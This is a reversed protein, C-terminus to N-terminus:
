KLNPNLPDLRKMQAKAEAIQASNSSSLKSVLQWLAFCDPFKGKGSQLVNLAQSELNNNVLIMAVQIRYECSEPQINAANEVIQLSGSELAAKFQTSALLPPLGLILGVLLGIFMGRLIKPTPRSSQKVSARRGSKENQKKLEHATRTNIEYGIILGSIIWGWVALGIQNLSIISQALYAFWVAILGIVVPDFDHIRKVLIIAARVVLTMMGLYILALPLGGNSAFDIFVNHASNSYVDPGRRLTAEVTKARRYWNGYSDLGIGFIPQQSVMKWGARWYDGRYTVSEKYLLGALPGSNLSGLVSLLFGTVGIIIAPILLLQVRSKSIRILAIIATGGAFVLIGQQSNTKIIVFVAAIIYTLYGLRNTTKMSNSCAMSFALVGTLAVFSSQFNPNGLFGIVPSYQNAWEIPDRDASQLLGYAVSLAGTGLLFWAIKRLLIESAV